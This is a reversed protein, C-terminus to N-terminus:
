TLLNFHLSQLLTYVYSASVFDSVMNIKEKLPTLILYQTQGVKPEM